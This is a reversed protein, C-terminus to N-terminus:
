NGKKSETYALIEEFKKWRGLPEIAYKKFFEYQYKVKPDYWDKWSSGKEHNKNDRHWDYVPVNTSSIREVSFHRKMEDDPMGDGLKILILKPPQARMDGRTICATLLNDVNGRERKLFALLKNETLTLDDPVNLIVFEPVKYWTRIDETSGYHFTIEPNLLCWDAM